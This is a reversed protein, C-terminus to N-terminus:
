GLPINIQPYGTKVRNKRESLFCFLTLPGIRGLFMANMIIIRGVSDLEATCDLSLGVTALASVAEFILKDMPITQTTVLMMVTCLLIMVAAMLVAVAQIITQWTIKFTSATVEGENHVAARFTLTLIALTTTKIGGATGGPSGGIFMQIVMIIYAPIGLASFPVSNFGATRLTVAQFFGNVMKDHWALGRFIGDWEFLLLLFTGSLILILTTGLVMKCIVPVQHLRRAKVFSWIVMPSIGGAIIELAIVTLLLKEGAYPVLSTAGPFFGANCFASVSTFIGQHLALLWDGHFNFFGFFLLLAGSFEVAFTYRLILRLSDFVDQDAAQTLETILQEGSLSLKGLSHLVLTALTMIGLGGLQILILLFYQGSITLETAIDIVTLGTVCVASVATFAAELIGLDGTIAWPSRLLLTGAICLGLFTVTVCRAPHAVILELYKLDTHKQRLAFILILPSLLFVALVTGGHWSLFGTLIIGAFLLTQVTKRYKLKDNSRCYRGLLVLTILLNAGCAWSFLGFEMAFLPASLGLLIGASSSGIVQELLLSAGTPSPAPHLRATILYYFAGVALLLSFLALLPNDLFEFYLIALNLLIGSALFAKGWKAYRFIMSMGLLMLGASFIGGASVTWESLIPNKGYGALITSPLLGLLLGQLAYQKAQRQFKKM